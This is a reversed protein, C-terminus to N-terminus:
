SGRNAKTLHLLLRCAHYCSGRNYNFGKCVEGTRFDVCLEVSPEDGDWVVTLEYKGHDASRPVVRYVNEQRKTIWPKERQAKQLVSQTFTASM